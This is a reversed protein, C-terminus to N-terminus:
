ISIVTTIKEPINIKSEQVKFTKEKLNVTLRIVNMFRIYIRFIKAKVNVILSIVSMFSYFNLLSNQSM